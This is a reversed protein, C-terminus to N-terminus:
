PSCIGHNQHRTLADRRAFIRECNTCFSYALWWESFVHFAKQFARADQEGVQLNEEVTRVADKLIRRLDAHQGGMNMSKAMERLVHAGPDDYHLHGGIFRKAQERGHTNNRHSTLGKRDNFNINCVDCILRWDNSSSDPREHSVFAGVPNLPAIPSLIPESYRGGPHQLPPLNSVPSIPNPQHSKDFTIHHLSDSPIMPYSPVAIGQEAHVDNRFPMPTYMDENRLPQTQLGFPVGPGRASPILIPAEGRYQVRHNEETPYSTFSQSPPRYEAHYSQSQHPSLYSYEPQESFPVNHRTPIPQNHPV